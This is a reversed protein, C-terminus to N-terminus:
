RAPGPAPLRPQLTLRRHSVREARATLGEAPSRYSAQWQEAEIWGRAQAEDPHWRWRSLVEVRSIRPEGRGHMVQLSLEDSLFSDGREHGSLRGIVTSELQEGSALEALQRNPNAPDNRVATLADGFLARGIARANFARDGVLAGEGDPRFLVPYVLPAADDAPLELSSVQWPGAFWPPYILDTQRPRPLPAPLQWDPWQQLRQALRQGARDGGTLPAVVVEAPAPAALGPTAGWTLLLVALIANLLTRAM